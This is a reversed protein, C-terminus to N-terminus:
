PPDHIGLQGWHLNLVPFSPRPPGFKNVEVSAMGNKIFVVIDALERNSHNRFDREVMIRRHLQHISDPYGPDAAVRSDFTDGTMWEDILLQNMIFERPQPLLDNNIFIIAAPVAVM